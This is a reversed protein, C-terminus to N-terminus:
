SWKLVFTVYDKEDRFRFYNGYMYWRCWPDPNKPHKGFHTECWVCASLWDEPFDVDYWIKRSFKYKKRFKIINPDTPQPKFIAGAGPPMAQVGLIQHAVIAPVLKKIVPLLVPMMTYPTKDEFNQSM